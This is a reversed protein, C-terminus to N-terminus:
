RIRGLHAMPWFIAEARGVLRDMPLPGWDHSDQSLNRNDGLVFLHGTPVVAKPLAYDLDEALCSEKLAVGNRYLVGPELVALDGGRGALRALEEPSIRREELWIADDTLHLSVNPPLGLAQRIARHDYRRVKGDRSALVLAGPTSSLEDGPLGVVRKITERESGDPARFVVVEGYGPTGGRFAWKNVLIADGVSLRPRMSRTPIHYTQVLFPRVLLFILAIAKLASGTLEYAFVFFAARRRRLPLRAATLALLILLIQAFSLAAIRDSWTEM